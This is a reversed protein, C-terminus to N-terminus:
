KTSPPPLLKKLHDEADTNGPSLELSRKDLTGAYAKVIANIVLSPNDNFIVHGCGYATIGERNPQADAFQRHCLRWRAAMVSDPFNTESVLDIVPISAPFPMKKMLEVTNQLNLSQYYM